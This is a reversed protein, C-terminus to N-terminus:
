IGAGAGLNTDQAATSCSLPFIRTCRTYVSQGKPTKRELELTIQVATPLTNDEQTSDWSVNWNTGDFYSLAFSNVGRCLIEEDPPPTTDSLLNRTVRRVLVHDGTSVDTLLTLEIQKIEGNADIHQPSDATSFFIVDDGQHGRDDQTQTGEFAGALATTTSASASAAATTGTGSTTSTTTGATSGNPNPPMANQLDQGLMNMTLALTRPPEVAEEASRSTKFAISVSAYMTFAMIGTITMAVILEVLTFASHASRRRSATRRPM